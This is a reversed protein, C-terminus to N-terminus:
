EESSERRKVEKESLEHTKIIKWAGTDDFKLTLLLDASYSEDIEDSGKVVEWMEAFVVLTRADIWKEMEVSWRNMHLFTGKPMRKKKAQAKIVNAARDMIADGNGLPDDPTEWKGNRLQFVSVWKGKGGACTIAFRRSDPAWRPAADCPLDAAAETTGAKVVRANDGEIYQWQKDPSAWAPTPTPTQSFAPTVLFLGLLVLAGHIVAPKPKMPTNPEVRLKVSM